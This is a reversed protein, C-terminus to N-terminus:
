EELRLTIEKGTYPKVKIEKCLGSTWYSDVDSDTLDIVEFHETAATRMVINGEDVSSVVVCVELPEMDSMPKTKVKNEKKEKIGIAKM